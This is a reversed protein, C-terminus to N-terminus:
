VPWDPDLTFLEQPRRVGKLAYRGLSVLRDRQSGLAAAFAASVVVNQDLSRCMTEIRSVENVAPGVVTFDLRELSGINGYVVEGIHLGLGFDTVALGVATRQVNLADVAKRAEVAADLARSCADATSGIAPDDIPLMGLLGDGIFKLVQGGQGHIAKVMVEAYHNLFPIIQDPAINDAIRTFDRLDSYWLVAVIHDAEGRAINGALVRRGADRGLYTEVLTAAIRTAMANRLGLALIPMLDYLFGVEAESFGGPRKTVFSCYLADLDGIAAREGYGIFLALYDTGGEERFEVLMPFEDPAFHPDELRRRLMPMRTEYLKNFPSRLWAESPVLNDDRDYQESVVAQGARWRFGIGEAVPHLTDGGVAIRILPIGAAVLREALGALLEPEPQGALSQRAIWDALNLRATVLDASPKPPHTDM